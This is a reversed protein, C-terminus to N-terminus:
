FVEIFLALRPALLVSHHYLAQRAYRLGQTQDEASSFWVMAFL